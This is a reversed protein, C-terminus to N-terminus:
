VKFNFVINIVCMNEALILQANSSLPQRSVAEEQIIFSFPMTNDKM